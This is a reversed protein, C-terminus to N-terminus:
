FQQLVRNIRYVSTGSEVPCRTLIGVSDGTHAQEVNERDIQMSEVKQRVANYEDGIEIVDGVSLDAELKVAVVKLKSFYNEVTGIYLKDKPREEPASNEERSEREEQGKVLDDIDLDNRGM